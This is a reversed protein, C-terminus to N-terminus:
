LGTYAIDGATWLIRGQEDAKWIIVATAPM